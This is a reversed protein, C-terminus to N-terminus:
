CTEVSSFFVLSSRFSSLNIWKPNFVQLWIFSRWLTQNMTLLSTSTADNIQDNKPSNSDEL